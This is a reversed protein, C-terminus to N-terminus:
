VENSSIMASVDGVIVEGRGGAGSRVSVKRLDRGDM